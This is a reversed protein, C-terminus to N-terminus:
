RGWVQTVRIFGTQGDRHRVKLWGPPNADLLDLLVDRGAEFVVPSTTDPKERVEARPASVIVTRRESLFKREIWGMDGQYDRVKTWGDQNVVVEVPTGRLIVYLAKAKASPGDYLAAGESVSRYDVAGVAGSWLVAVLALASVTFGSMRQM